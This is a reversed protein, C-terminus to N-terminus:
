ALPRDAGEGALPGGASGSGTGASDTGGAENPKGEPAADGAPAPASGESDRTWALAFLIVGVNVCIDAVNFVPFGHGRWQLYIFDVVEGTAARDILNGIAGGLIFALSLQRPLTMLAHRSFLVLVIVAALASFVWLPFNRGALLGFAIGSNRTYTFQVLDGVVMMPPAFALHATAWHKSWQDLAVLAAAIGLLLPYSRKM